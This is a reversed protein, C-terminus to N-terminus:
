NDQSTCGGMFTRPRAASETSFGSGAGDFYEVLYFSADGPLPATADEHGVTSTDFSAAEVCTVAGFDFSLGTDRIAMIQGSIVNYFLAGSVETWEVFTGSGEDHVSLSLPEVVGGQDHPVVVYSTASAQNGSGDTATYVVTYVRGNGGGAREARLKFDFDANGFSAGQIDGTTDGDGSGNDPESSTIPLLQVTTPGCADTATVTAEIHVLRHNPPWLLSPELSSNIEPPTSDLVTVTAQCSDSAGNSDEVTLTVVTDGLGYPGPPDQVVTVPDGDPDSSGADVSADATCAADASVMPDTCLATPTQNEGVRRIRFNFRDAIFFISGAPNVDVGTPFALRASTAPGGDGSFGSFGNGAVTTIIGTAADVRRIRNNSAGAIFLNGAADLAVGFPDFLSADIALGGDGSFGFLGNGAVTTIIGTVADVRRIRHNGKDAFFLNGAADLALERPFRLRASAAPGGDGSFGSFGNGAVTTIIGTAADVRRIRNNSVEAIFLNGAADLVVGRPNHLRASTALIGDGNFGAVGTGAVTTIIGTAADVRRIRQNPLDAIFLNGAADRAVDSVRSLRADTALGGDGSFGSIGNGAVTIIDQATAGAVFLVFLLVVVPVPSLRCM